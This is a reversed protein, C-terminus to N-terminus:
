HNLADDDVINNNNNDDDDDDDDDNDNKNSPSSAFNFNFRREWVPWKLAQFGSFASDLTTQSLVTM